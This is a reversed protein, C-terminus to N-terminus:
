VKPFTWPARYAPKLYRDAELNGFTKNARDYSLAQGGLRASINAIHSYTACLAANEVTCATQRDRKRVCDIFNEAHNIHSKGDDEVKKVEIGSSGTPYITWDERDAVLVGNTGTFSVGYNKGYPGFDNINNEWTVIHNAFQYSVSLTDCTEQMGDPYAFNGGSALVKDPVTSTHMGWLAMDILHVGWDTVLGGGYDWFMRWLGHFRNSNFPRLPAPGLWFDFDVGEPSQSDAVHQKIAAYSFNGWVNVRSIRGLVGSDLYAIMEKWLRGSRQQQGVQVVRNYKQAAEVMVECEAISNALPKEVYVDKGAQCADVFPLCHWHDPTGIIVINVDKNDIIKRYDNHLEFKADQLKSLDKARSELVTKDVDCLALCQVNPQKLIDTLDGWGMNKCGILAVNLRDSAPANKSTASIISPMTIGAAVALSSQRLFKRRTITM